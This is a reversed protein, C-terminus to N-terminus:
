GRIFLKVFNFLLDECFYGFKVFWRDKVSRERKILILEAKILLSLVGDIILKDGVVMVPKGNQPLDKRIGPNPKRYRTKLPEIGLAAGVSAVRGKVRSNSLLYIENDKKLTEIYGKIKESVEREGDPLLTGNVDLLIVYGSVGRKLIEEWHQIKM